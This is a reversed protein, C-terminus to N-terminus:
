TYGYSHYEVVALSNDQAGESPLPMIAALREPPTIHHQNTNVGACACDLCTHLTYVSHVYMAVRQQPSHAPTNFTNLITVDGMGNAHKLFAPETKVCTTAILFHLAQAQTSSVMSADQLTQLIGVTPM